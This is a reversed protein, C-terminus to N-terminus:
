RPQLGGYHSQRHIKGYLNCRRRPYERLLGLLCACKPGPPRDHMLSGICEKKLSKEVYDKRSKADDHKCDRHKYDSDGDLEVALAGHEELLFANPEVLLMKVDVLEAGHAGVRWLVGRRVFQAVGLFPNGLHAPEEALSAEIFERLHEVNELPGHADDARTRSQPVLVVQNCFAVLVTCVVHGHAKGAPRLDVAAVFQFDGHLRGEVAFVYLALTEKEVALAKKACENAHELAITHYFAAGAFDVLM